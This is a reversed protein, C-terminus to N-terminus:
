FDLADTVRGDGRTVTGGQGHKVLELKDAEQAARGAQESSAREIAAAEQDIVRAIGVEAEKYSIVQLGRRAISQGAGELLGREAGAALGRAAGRAAGAGGTAAGVAVEGCVSGAVFELSGKDVTAKLDLAGLMLDTPDTSFPHGALEAIGEVANVINGITQTIGFVSGISKVGEVVGSAVGALFSQWDFSGLGLPDGRDLPDDGAYAYLNTAAGAFRLPDPTTFRGTVPDYERAGMHVLGTDRDRVGGGFGFPQFGPSTDAIVNGFSDYDLREAVAGSGADVVLRVSGVEDTVLRFTSGGKVVYAPVTGGAYVFRAVVAGTGDLEAVPRFSGAYLFGQVLTGDVQKGVRRGEGDLVYSIVHGSPLTVSALNGFGDYAYATTQDGTSREVLRGTGDHVFTEAGAAVLRDQADYAATGSGASTRNGNQDYAYSEVLTGDRRVAALRDAADYAYTFVHEVGGVAEDKATIRGLLDRTYSAAYLPTGSTQVTYSATAGFTDNTWAESVVGLTAATPLGTVVDRAITLDGAGTVFGDPDYGFAVSGAGNVQESAPRLAADVTRTVTGAVPGSWQASTRLPGDYGYAVTVGGPAVRTAVRGAADYTVAYQAVQSGNRTVTYTTPRGGSDYGVALTEGNPRSVAALARDADVTYQIPGTGPLDPPHVTVLEGRADYAFGHAPRGPPTLAVLDGAADYAFGVVRGDALTSSTLRGAADYTYRATRGLPDTAQALRGDSGYAFATTRATAGSGAVIQTLRGRGDYTIATPEFGPAAIRVPRGAADATVERTRGAPSTFTFTRTAADWHITTKAGAATIEDTLSTLTTPDRPDALTVTRTATLVAALGSPLHLTRSAAIPAVMGFRPDPAAVQTITSGDAAAVVTEAGDVPRDSHSVTGDPETVTRREVNAATEETLYTTTRDLATAHQVEVQRDGTQRALTQAAHTPDEDSLLRGDADYAFTATANRRDTLSTLLGSATYGLRVVEGAPNTVSALFGNPDAGLTTRDGFPGVIASPNGAGDHEITTVDDTGGTKQTVRALRGAGDYGFEFLVAGTVADVTRLHRGDADFVYLQRGDASAILLAGGDFGPLAPGVRLIRPSADRTFPAIWFSGDPAASVDGVGVLNAQTAPIGQQIPTNGGGAVTVLTGDRELVDVRPPTAGDFTVGVFVRGDPTVSVAIPHGSEATYDAVTDIIGKPDVRRVRDNGFDAIYFSSDPAVAVGLAAISARTAPGKDGLPPPAGGTPGLGAVREIIGDTGVRRIESNAAVIYLSGDPGIAIGDPHFVGASTAPGGDGDLSPTGNGAVTSIIGDPTVRRVRHNSEESIYLSGDPGLRIGFPDGLEAQTAPIGDGNFGEVGTGAVIQQTGDPAIRVVTDTHPSASYVSGDPAVAVGTIVSQGVVDTTTLIRALSGARRRSGGGEHLVRAVPDFVHHVDLTWGGLGVTRADTLGEGITTTFHRSIAVQQRAPNAGLTVGGSQDFASPFPGPTQYIAPYNYDITVDLTQGGLVPRGYGDLRNWTFTTQQNPGPPFTQDVTQGAVALHLGISALSAPVAAGSLAITRKAAQGPVRDSRYNLTFPTGVIPIAEGLVQNEAEIISGGQLCPQQLADTADPGGDPAVADDPLAYPWNSDEPSFHVVPVRWLTQGAAYAGALARREDDTMGLGGDAAGDGDTDVDALGGTIGVIEVVRGNPLPVWAASRRDYTGVPVPTGVPFGLFNEAYTIVPRDFAVSAAGASMAEDASLEVCYTYGSLPPLVAPMAQPGTDGVTFETARIHLTSAARMTGDPMVLSAATGPSFLMLLHRTGDGDTQVSAEASQFPASAGFGVVTVAPDMGVLVVDPIAVYTQWPVDIRRQAPCFGSKEFTATVPGGGNVAMDFRGDTRSLGQGLEPHDLMQVLVGTLPRGARDLVRGRLVAARQPAIADAAVNFQVPQPGAYLFATAAGLDTSAGHQLPPATTAPDPGPVTPLTTSTTGPTTSSTTTPTRPITTTTPPAHCFCDDGCALGAPCGGLSPECEEGRGADLAGDGCTSRIATFGKAPLKRGRLKGALVNCAPAAIRGTLRVKRRAGCAPWTIAVSTFTRKATIKGRAAPCGSGISIQSGDGIVVVDVESTTSGAILPADSARVVFRGPPCPVPKAKRGPSASRGGPLLLAFLAAAFLALGRGRPPPPLAM